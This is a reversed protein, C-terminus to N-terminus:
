YLLISKCSRVIFVRHLRCVAQDSSVIGAGYLALPESRHSYMLLRVAIISSVLSVTSVEFKFFRAM